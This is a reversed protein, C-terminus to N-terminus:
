PHELHWKVLEQLYMAMGRSAVAHAAASSPSQLSEVHAGCKHEAIWRADQHLDVTLPYARHVHEVCSTVLTSRGPLQCACSDHCLDPAGLKQTQLDIDTSRPDTSRSAMNEAEAVSEDDLQRKLCGDCDRELQESTLGIREARPVTYSPAGSDCSRV